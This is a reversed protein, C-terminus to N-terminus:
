VTIKWIARNRSSFLDPDFILYYDGPVNGTEFVIEGSM